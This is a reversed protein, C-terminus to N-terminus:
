DFMLEISVSNLRFYGCKFSKVKSPYYTEQMAGIIIEFICFRTITDISQMLDSYVKKTSRVSWSKRSIEVIHTYRKERQLPAPLKLVRSIMQQIVRYINLVNKTDFINEFNVVSSLKM